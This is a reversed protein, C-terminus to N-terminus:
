GVPGCEAAPVELQPPVKKGLSRFKKLLVRNLDIPTYETGAPACIGLDIFNIILAAM